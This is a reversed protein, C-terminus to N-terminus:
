SAAALRHPECGLMSEAEEVAKELKDIELTLASRQARVESLTASPTAAATLTRLQAQRDELQHRLRPVAATDLEYVGSQTGRRIVPSRSIQTLFVALPDKGAIAYGAGQVLGYWDRYHLAEPHRPDALLVQVATRRIAPGRLTLRPEADSGDVSAVVTAGTTTSTERSGGLRTLLEDRQDLEVLEADLAAIQDRLRRREAHLEDRRRQLSDREAAAAALLRRSPQSSRQMPLPEVRAEMLQEVIGQSCSLSVSEQTTFLRWTATSFPQCSMVSTRLTRRRGLSDQSKGPKCYSRVRRETRAATDLVCDM